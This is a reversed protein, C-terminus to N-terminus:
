FLKPEDPNDEELQADVIKELKKSYRLKEWVEEAPANPDKRAKFYADQAKRMKKVDETFKAIDVIIM